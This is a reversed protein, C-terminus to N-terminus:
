IESKNEILSFRCRGLGRSRSMGMSKVAKLCNKFQEQYGQIDPFHEAKAYLVLPITVEAQRLTGKAALGNKNIATSSFVDYLYRTDTESISETLELSLEANSFFAKAEKRSIDKEEDEKKPSEGFIDRIFESTIMESDLEHLFDAGERILGKLTKGPIFPLGKKTKTVLLDAYTGGSLGSGAHWYTFFEIQYIISM